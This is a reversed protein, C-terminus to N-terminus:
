RIATMGGGIDAVEVTEVLIRRALEYQHMEETRASEV